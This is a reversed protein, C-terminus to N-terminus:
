IGGNPSTSPCFAPQAIRAQSSVCCVSSHGHRVAAPMEQGPQARSARRQQQGARPPCRGEFLDLFGSCEADPKVLIIPGPRPLIRADNAIADRLLACAAELGGLAAPTLMRSLRLDLQERSTVGRAAYVRALVPHLSADAQLMSEPVDRRRLTPKM